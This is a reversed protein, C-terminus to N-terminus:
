FGSFNFQHVMKDVKPQVFDKVVIENCKMPVDFLEKEDV